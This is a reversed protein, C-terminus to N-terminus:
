EEKEVKYLVAPPNLLYVVTELGPFKYRPNIMNRLAPRTKGEWIGFYIYDDKEKKIKNLFDQYNKALPIVNFNMKLYYAIHPKRAAITKGRQSEPVNAFYWDRLKLIEKPGSDIKSDNFAYSKAFTVLSVVIIILFIVSKPIIKKLSKGNSLLPYIAMITYFPILFLSFRESYFVLLLILFFVGGALLYSLKRGKLYKLPNNILFVIIGLIVFVGLQWGILKEMDLLFHKYINQLMHLLFNIPDSFIVETLSSFQNSGSYWFSDWSIKGKGYLEYAINRYNENYFFSGRKFLLFIGWPSITIFFASLFIFASKIKFKLDIRRYNIFLIVFFFIVLFIGNYRTLYALGTVFAGLILFSIKYEEKFLLLYVALCILANFFMDTGASYTYQIFVQNFVLLLGTFFSYENSFIKKVITMSLFIVASASLLNIVIGAKLYEGILFAFVGLIIQYLPGRFADILINGRLFEKAAPVYSQYFDTEVGYDGIKHYTLSLYLLILLYIISFLAPLHKYNIISNFSIEKRKINNIRPQESERTKTKNKEM